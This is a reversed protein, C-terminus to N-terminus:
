ENIGQMPWSTAYKRILGYNQAVTIIQDSVYTPVLEAGATSSGASLAKTNSKNVLAKLYEAAIAKRETLEASKSVEENGFINKRLPQDAKIKELVKEVTKETVAGVITEMTEHDKQEQLEKEDKTM